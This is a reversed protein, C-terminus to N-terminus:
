YKGYKHTTEIMKRMNPISGEDILASFDMIYGGGKGCVDILKRCHEEVDQESGMALLSNPVNGDICQKGGLVEKAKFADTGAELHMILSGHPLENFYKLREDNCGQTFVYVILGEDILGQIQKKLNPWYITEFQEENMFADAGKFIYNTVIPNGFEKAGKLAAKISWPLMKDMAQKLKEPQRYMDVIIGRSGRYQNSIIDFPPTVFAGMLAPIGLEGGAHQAFRELHDWYRAVVAGGKQLVKFAEIIEPNEYIAYALEQVGALYQYTDHIVPLNSLPALKPSLRPLYKKLVWESPDDMFEDYEDAKMYEAELYQFSSDNPLDIGPLKLRQWELMQFLESPPLFEPGIYCDFDLDSHMKSFASFTRDFDKLSEGFTLNEEYQLAFKQIGCPVVPIQDPVRLQVTDIIRRAKTQYRKKIEPSKFELHDGKIWFEILGTGFETGM